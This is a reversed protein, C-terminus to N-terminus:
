AAAGPLHRCRGGLRGSSSYKVRGAADRERKSAGHGNLWRLMRRWNESLVDQQRRPHGVPVGGHRSTPAASATTTRSPVDPRVIAEIYLMDGKANAQGIVGVVEDTVLTEAMAMLAEDSNRVM